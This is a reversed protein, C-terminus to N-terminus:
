KRYMRDLVIENVHVSDYGVLGVVAKAVEGTDMTLGIDPHGGIRDHFETHMGSPYVGLVRINNDKAELRLCDIFGRLGYKSACYLGNKVEPKLGASSLISIIMGSKKELFASYVRSTLKITSALNVDLVKDVESDEIHQVLTKSIIAANNVFVSVNNKKVADAIDSITSSDRLDGKVVYCEVEKELVRERTESLKESDRGHLVINYGNEAFVMALAKGLGQSSGTILVTENM